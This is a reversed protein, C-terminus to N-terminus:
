LADLKVGTPRIKLIRLSLYVRVDCVTSLYSLDCRMNPTLIGGGADNVPNGNPDTPQQYTVQYVNTGGTTGTTVQTNNFVYSFTVNSRNVGKVANWNNFATGVCPQLAQPFNSINVNVTSGQVWAHRSGASDPPVCSVVAFVRSIPNGLLLVCIMGLLLLLTTCPRPM